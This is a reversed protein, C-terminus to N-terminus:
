FFTQMNSGICTLYPMYRLSLAKQVAAAAAVFIDRLRLTLNAHVGIMFKPGVINFAQGPLVAVVGIFAARLGGARRWAAATM